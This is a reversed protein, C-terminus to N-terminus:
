DFACGERLLPDLKIQELQVDSEPLEGPGTRTVHHLQRPAGLLERWRTFVIAPAIEVCILCTWTENNSLANHM